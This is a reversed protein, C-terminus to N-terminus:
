NSYRELWVNDKEGSTINELREKLEEVKQLQAITLNDETNAFLFAFLFLPILFARIM